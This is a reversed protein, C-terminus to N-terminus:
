FRKTHDVVRIFLSYIKSSVVRICYGYTRSADFSTLTFQFIESSFRNYNILPLFGFRFSVFRFSVWENKKYETRSSPDPFCFEPIATNMNSIKIFSHSILRALWQYCYSFLSLIGRWPIEMSYYSDVQQFVWVFQASWEFM